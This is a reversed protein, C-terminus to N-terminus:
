KTEGESAPSLSSYCQLARRANRIDTLTGRFQINIPQENDLDSDGIEDRDTKYNALLRQLIAVSCTEFMARWRMQEPSPAPRARSAAGRRYGDEILEYVTNEISGLWRDECRIADRIKHSADMALIRHEAKRELAAAAEVERETPEHEAM